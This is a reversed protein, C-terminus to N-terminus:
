TKKVDAKSVCSYEILKLVEYYIFRSIQTLAFYDM